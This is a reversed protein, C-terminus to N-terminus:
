RVLFPLFFLLMLFLAIWRELRYDNHELNTMRRTCRRFVDGAALSQPITAACNHRFHPPAGIPGPSPRQVSGDECGHTRNRKEM